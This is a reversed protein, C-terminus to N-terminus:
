ASARSNVGQTLRTRHIERAAQFGKDRLAHWALGLKGMSFFRTGYRRLARLDIEFGLGPATPLELEGREHDFPSVLLADRKEVTWSPPNLPYELFSYARDGGVAMLQLNVAFGIGNTWTHPTYKLGAAQCLRIVELTEGIGGTFMADPQFYAYCGREIMMKLEALGGTHLEGGAIPVRSYRTLEAQEAYADMPLPEEIWAVGLDACADAFRKARPLDWLPADAVATVRWAQNVDVAITMKHGVAQAVAAVQAIDVREDFDHVRLKIARFGEAYRAEAEEVRAQPAKLEGTSAYLKIRGAEAGLLQYVPKGALKGKIDWFAPEIWSNRLGLYAMERLRQQMLPIDTADLGILYPGILEGFGRRERGMSPGASWGQVGSETIVRILDFRNETQPYGPIWSPRFATELPVAVHYMEIRSIRPM